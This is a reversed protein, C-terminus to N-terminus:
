SYSKEEILESGAMLNIQKKLSARQDNTIYVSRALEIFEKGFNQNNELVRIRDEIHWLQQNVKRLQNLLLSDVRIDKVRDRLLSLEKSVNALKTSDIINEQKIELITIKDFVEGISAPIEIMDYVRIAM